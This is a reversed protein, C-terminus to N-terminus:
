DRLFYITNVNITNAVKEIEEKTVAKIRNKYEEIEMNTGAIEQGFYYSIESDQEENIGDITSLILNKANQIDEKTFNGEKMDKLQKQIIELAKKYNQIEIGARIFINEKMKVYNSSVTYALSAKERVNQFMKSNAGGGLIANYVMTVYNYDKIEEKKTATLGLILKGQTVDKHEVIEKPEKVEKLNEEQLIEIKREPLEQILENNKINEIIENEINGSIFIDIKCNQILNKYQKYLSQPTMNELDEVYGYRYLSYSKNEYMNEICKDLAYAAKNDIKGEIIQKIKEKETEVYEPKFQDNEVYPNCVIELLTEIGKQLLKEKEPLYEDQIIELYFKLVQNDGTKEIGSDFAAGYMEELNENIKEQSPMTKSGRKLLTGIVANETVHKRTLPTTLFIALLNTKFKNTQIEHLQIGNKIMVKKNSM